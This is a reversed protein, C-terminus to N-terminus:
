GLDGTVTEPSNTCVTPSTCSVGQDRDSTWGYRAGPGTAESQDLPVSFVPIFILSRCSANVEFKTLGSRVSETGRKQLTLRLEQQVPTM